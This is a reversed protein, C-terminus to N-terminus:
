PVNATARRASPTPLFQKPRFEFALLLTDGEERLAHTSIVSMLKGCHLWCTARRASPTPLFGPGNVLRYPPFADGEERLAHTSIPEMSAAAADM